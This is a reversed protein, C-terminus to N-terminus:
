YRFITQSCTWYTRKETVNCNALFCFHQNPPIPLIIVIIVKIDQAPPPLHAQIMEKSVFGVGGDWVV